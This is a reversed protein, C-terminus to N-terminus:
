PQGQVLRLMGPLCAKAQNSGEFLVFIYTENWNKIRGVEAVMTGPARYSVLLGVDEPILDKIKM